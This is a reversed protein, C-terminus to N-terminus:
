SNKTFERGALNATQGNVTVNFTMDPKNSSVNGAVTVSNASLFAGNSPNTITLSPPQVAIKTVNISAQGQNPTPANDVAVVTIPNNGNVLNVTATWTNTGINYTALAGNVTVSQVGTAGAGSDIATGTIEVQSDFTEFNNSPSTITITPATTDLPNRVVTIATNSINGANDRATATITNSGITLPVGTRRGPRAASQRM